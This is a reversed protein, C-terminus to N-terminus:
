FIIWLVVFFFYFLISFQDEIAIIHHLALFFSHVTSHSGIAWSQVYVNLHCQHVIFHHTLQCNICFKAITLCIAYHSELHYILFGYIINDSLNVCLLDGFFDIHFVVIYDIHITPWILQGEHCADEHSQKNPCDHNKSHYEYWPTSFLHIGLNNQTLEASDANDWWILLEVFISNYRIMIAIMDISPSRRYIHELLRLVALDDTIM